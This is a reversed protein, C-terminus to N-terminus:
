KACDKNLRIKTILLTIVFRFEFNLIDLYIYIYELMIWYISKM